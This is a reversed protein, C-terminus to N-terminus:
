GAKEPLALVVPQPLLMDGCQRLAELLTSGSATMLDPLFEREVTTNGLKIAELKAKVLLLICRWRSRCAQEWRKRTKEDSCRQSSSWRSRPPKHTFARESIKPLPIALKVKLGSLEFLVWAAGADDDTGMARSKAGHAALLRDLDLKTKEVSVTTNEAYTSM